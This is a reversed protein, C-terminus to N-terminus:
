DLPVVSQRPATTRHAPMEPSQELRGMFAEVEDIRREWAYARATRKGGETLRARLGPDQLLSAVAAAVADARPEPVLCNEGHRCFDRNGHADTCVVATGAAMAELPPLSFGEHRSTQVFVTAQNLLENIEEDASAEFYRANHKPGVEPEIGFMWLEPQPDLAKWSELTLPLNKLPNSRGLALVVDKRRPVSLPRFVELDIGPAILEANVGVEALRERNWGSITMFRFEQRYSALVRHRMREDGPYYSTEIDQVFYVPIGKTVSARWVWPATGWWTAVKIAEVSALAAALEEYSDFSKVSVDLPFWDPQRGLSYLAVEHGRARLRNLHEFIDRHGGGVGTGETVYIIRLAGDTTRINRQDFWPRWKRWFYHLSAEERKGVEVGRTVSELHTSAARPEYVVERGAQWTRLCYDVDEFGMGFGEDFLGIEDVVSRKVYICAGTMALATDRVRAPGYESPMFRYRHDFWEPAGLNRYTGASQIRGDPYLLKPGTIGIREELHATRQLRQLWHKDVIVDNNMVVIDDGSDARRIGRNVSSAFGANESALDLSIGSLSQLRHQHEPASADDVVVIRTRAPDTTRKLRRVADITADPAGFTPMVITVPRGNRAYWRRVHRAEAREHLMTRVGRDLGVFRLPFTTLRLLFERWGHYKVTLYARRPLNTLQRRM